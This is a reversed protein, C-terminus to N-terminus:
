AINWIDNSIGQRRIFTMEDGGTNGPDASHISLYTTGSLLGTLVSRAGAESLKNTNSASQTIVMDNVNYSFYNGDNSLKQPTMNQGGYIFKGGTVSDWLGWHTANKNEDDNLIPIFYGADFNITKKNKATAM